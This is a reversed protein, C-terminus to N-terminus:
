APGAYALATGSGVLLSPGVIGGIAIM